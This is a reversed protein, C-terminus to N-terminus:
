IVRSKRTGHATKAIFGESFKSSVFFRFCETRKNITDTSLAKESVACDRGLSVALRDGMIQSSVKPAGSADCSDVCGITPVGPLSKRLWLV